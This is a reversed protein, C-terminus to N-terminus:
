ASLARPGLDEATVVIPGAADAQGRDSQRRDIVTGDPIRCAHDVVVGCLRCHRGITVGPLVVSDEVRAGEGVRVNAFLVSRKLCGRIECGAAVLSPSDGDDSASADHRHTLEPRSGASPVPWGPDDLRLSPVTDLLELHARWYAAPTGVDRWYGPQGSNRAVFPYAFVRVQGLLTPLIDRGFDHSSDSRFADRRLADALVDPSMVYVGMSALVRDTNPLDEPRDPKEIFRQVSGRADVSVIGFQGAESREVEICGITVDARRREHWALMATYDMQYVHDGALIMVFRPDLPEIMDLNRYVADATGRYGQGPARSRAPWATIFEDPHAAVGSWVTALHALLSDEKHQTAVGVRVIGSNICNALSFDINRYAAGFPLAPKCIDRTLSGL